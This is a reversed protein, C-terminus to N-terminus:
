YKFMLLEELNNEIIGIERIPMNYVLPNDNTDKGSANIWVSVVSGKPVDYPIVFSSRLLEGSSLGQGNNNPTPVYNKSTVITSDAFILGNNLVEGHTYALLLMSNPVEFYIEQHSKAIIKGSLSPYGVSVWNIVIDFDYPNYISYVAVVPSVTPHTSLTLLSGDVEEYMPVNFLSFYPTGNNYLGEIKITSTVTDPIFDENKFMASYSIKGGSSMPLKSFEWKLNLNGNYRYPNVISDMTFTIDEGEIPNYSIELSESSKHFGIGCKSVANITWVKDGLLGKPELYIHVIISPEEIFYTFGEDTTFETNMNFIEDVTYISVIPQSKLPSIETPNLNEDLRFSKILIRNILEEVKADDFQIDGNSLNILNVQTSAIKSIEETINTTKHKLESMNTFEFGVFFLMSIITLFLFVSLISIFGNKNKLYHIEGGQM